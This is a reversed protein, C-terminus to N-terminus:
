AAWPELETRVPEGTRAADEVAMAVRHDQCGEALPYPAPGTGRVWGRVGDLLAAVAIDDDALRAGVYPNRWVVRGEFSIHELDFGDLNQELGSTRRELRSEVFTRADLLRTVRDDVMEGHSGRVVIRNTRLPNHWQLDSFDYVASRGAGFDLVALVDGADQPAVDDTWGEKVIPQVLPGTVRRAVVDVADFGAGLFLRIVAQAHYMHTSSIQVQTVQGIAGSRLVELRAAHMPMYPSHEAVQVLGSAGVDDWLRRLGDTGPAPPTEALVPVGAAVLERVADPTVDWPVAVVVAEPRGAALLDGITRYSPAGWASEVQAGREASRTVVGTLAFREPMLRAMRAFFEGRWGSGVIAFRLPGNTPPELVSGAPALAPLADNSTM